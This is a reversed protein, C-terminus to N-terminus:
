CPAAIPLASRLRAGTLDIHCDYCLADVGARRAAAFAEAYAPDLDAALSFRECDGRQVIFLMVARAGEAVMAALEELHKRGRATVCDPFEALGAARRLHVNKVEVYAPPRDDSELLLDVRSAAGYKM